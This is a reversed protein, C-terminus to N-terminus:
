SGHNRTVTPIFDMSTPRGFLLKRLQSSIDAILQPNDRQFHHSHVLITYFTLAAINYVFNLVILPVLLVFLVIFVPLLITLEVLRVLFSWVSQRNCVQDYGPLSSLAEMECGVDM